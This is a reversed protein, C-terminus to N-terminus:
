EAEDSTKIFRITNYTNNGDGFKRETVEIMINKLANIHAQLDKFSGPYVNFKGASGPENYDFLSDILDYALSGEWAEIHDDESKLNVRAKIKWENSHNIIHLGASFKVEIEDTKIGEDDLKNYENKYIDTLYFEEGLYEDGNDLDRIQYVTYNSTDPGEYRDRNEGQFTSLLGQSESM